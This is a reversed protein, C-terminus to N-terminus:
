DQYFSDYHFFQNHFKKDLDFLLFKTIIRESKYLGAEEINKLEDQLDKQLKGYM